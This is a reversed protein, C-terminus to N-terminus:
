FILESFDLLCFCFCCSDFYILLSNEIVVDFCHVTNFYVFDFNSFQSALVEVVLIILYLFLQFLDLGLLFLFYLFKLLAILDFM